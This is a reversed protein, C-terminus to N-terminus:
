RPLRFPIANTRRIEDLVNKQSLDKLIEEIIELRRAASLGIPIETPIEMPEITKKHRKELASEQIDFDPRDPIIEIRNKLYFLITEKFKNDIDIM